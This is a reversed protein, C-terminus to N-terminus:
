PAVSPVVSAAAGVDVPLEDAGEPFETFDWLRLVENWDVAIVDTRDWSFLPLFQGKKRRRQLSFFGAYRAWRSGGKLYVQSDEPLGADRVAVEVVRVRLGERMRQLSGLEGKGLSLLRVLALAARLSSTFDELWRLTLWMLLPIGPLTILIIPLTLLLSLGYIALGTIL